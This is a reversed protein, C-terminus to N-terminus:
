ITHKLQTYDNEYFKRKLELTNDNQHLIIKIRCIQERHSPLMAHVGGVM